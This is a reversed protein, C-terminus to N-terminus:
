FPKGGKKPRFYNGNEWIPYWKSQAEKSSFTKELEAM